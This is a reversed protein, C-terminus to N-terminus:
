RALAMRRQPQAPSNQQRGERSKQILKQFFEEGKWQLTDRPVVFEGANLRAPVDDTVHGRSPSAEVPVAGGRTPIASPIPVSPTASSPVAGGDALFFPAVMGLASGIGSSASQNAQFQSMQNGYGMNLTNGWVGAAQNAMGLAGNGAGISQNVYGLAGNGSGISQNNVGLVGTGGGLTSANLGYYGGATGMTQAGSATTALGANVGAAGAGTGTNYSTSIASPYGRGVNVANTLLAQGQADVGAGAQNAAAAQAAAKNARFGIDLAAARTSTPDVGFQELSQTAAQRQTDFTQAVQASARGMELARRDPSNYDRAQAVLRDELPQYVQDYHEQARKAADQQAQQAALNANIIQQNQAKNDNYTSKAWDFQEQGMDAARKAADTYAGFQTQNQELAKQAANEQWAAQSKNFDLAQAAAATQADSLMRATEMNSQSAQAIPTYDPPPPASKKGM